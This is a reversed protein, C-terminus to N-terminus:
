DRGRETKSIGARDPLVKCALRLTRRAALGRGGVAYLAASLCLERALLWMQRAQHRRAITVHRLHPACRGRGHHSPRDTEDQVDGSPIQTREQASCREPAAPPTNLGKHNCNAPARGFRVLYRHRM